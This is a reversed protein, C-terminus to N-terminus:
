YQRDGRLRYRRPAETGVTMVEQGAASENDISSNPSDQEDSNDENRATGSPVQADDFSETLDIENRDKGYETVQAPAEDAFSETLNIEENRGAVFAAKAEPAEPEEETLDIPGESLLIIEEIRGAVFAVQAESAEDDAFTEETLDVPGEPLLVREFVPMPAPGLHMVQDGFRVMGRFELHGTFNKFTFRTTDDVVERDFGGSVVENDINLYISFVNELLPPRAM